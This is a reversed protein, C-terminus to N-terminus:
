LHCLCMKHRGQWCQDNDCIWSVELEPAHFRCTGAGSFGYLTSCGCKACDDDSQCGSHKAPNDAYWAPSAQTGCVDCFGWTFTSVNACMLSHAQPGSSACPHKQTSDACEECFTGSGSPDLNGQSDIWPTIIGSSDVTVEAGVAIFAKLPFPSDCWPPPHTPPSPAVPPM